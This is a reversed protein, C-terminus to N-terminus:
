SNEVTVDIKDFPIAEKKSSVIVNCCHQFFHVGAKIFFVHSTYLKRQIGFIVKVKNRLLRQQSKIKGLFDIALQKSSQIKGHMFVM